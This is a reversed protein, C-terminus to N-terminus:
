ALSRKRFPYLLALALCVGFVNALADAWSGDRGQALAAQAFELGIGLASAGIIIFGGWIAPWGLRLAGTLSAYAFAHLVKDMHLIRSGPGSPILSEHIIIVAFIVSLVKFGTLVSRPWLRPAFLQSNVFTTVLSAM